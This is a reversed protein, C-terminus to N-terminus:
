KFIPCAGTQTTLNSTGRELNLAGCKKIEPGVESGHVKSGLEQASFPM